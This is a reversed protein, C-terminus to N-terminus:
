IDSESNTRILQAARPSRPKIDCKFAHPLSTVGSSWRMIPEIEVGYEDVPKKIDFTALTCAVNCFLAAHAVAEGPCARRGFGFAFKSSDPENRPSLFREPDFVDPDKYITEDHLAAWINAVLATGSPIIYGKYIDDQTVSHSVMPVVPRWRLVEKLVSYVYPLSERDEVRPLRNNGIVRDIEDQARRQIDPFLMMSLFFNSLAAVTTDAQGAYLGAAVWKIDEDTSRESANLLTETFSKPANGSAVQKKVMDFPTDVMKRILGQTKIGLRKFGAGPFWSPVYKLFPLTDVLFVGPLAAISFMRLAKETDDMITKFEDSEHKFGYAVKLAITGATRRFNKTFTDPDDLLRVLSHGIEKEILPWYERTVNTNLGVKLLKRYNKFRENYPMLVVTEGWGMLENAMVLHPRNSYIASRAEFLDVIAKSSNLLIIPKNFVRFTVLEGFISGWQTFQLWEEQQSLQFLNGFIPIPTPGPPLSKSRHTTLYTLLLVLFLGILSTDLLSWGESSLQPLTLAM